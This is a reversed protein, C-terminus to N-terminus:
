KKKKTKKAPAHPATAAAPKTRGVETFRFPFEISQPKSPKPFYWLRLADVVCDEVPKNRLTSSKVRPRDVIGEKTVTFAVVMEGQLDVGDSLLQEYCAQVEAQHGQYVAAVSERNFPLKTVDPGTSAPKKSEETAPASEAAGGKAETAPTETLALATVLTFLHIM